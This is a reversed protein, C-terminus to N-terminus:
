LINFSGVAAPIGPHLPQPFSDFKYWGSDSHEHLKVPKFKENVEALHTVYGNDHTYTNVVKHDPIVGIEEMCERTATQYPSEGNEINGGVTSWNGAYDEDTPLRKVLFAENGHKFLFGAASEPFILGTSALLEEQTKLRELLKGARSM